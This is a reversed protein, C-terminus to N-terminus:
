LTAKTIVCSVKSATAFYDLMCVQFILFKSKYKSLTPGYLLIKIVTSVSKVKKQSEQNKLHGDAVQWLGDTM